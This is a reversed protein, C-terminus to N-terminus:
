HGDDGEQHEIEPVPQDRTPLGLMVRVTPRPLEPHVQQQEYRPADTQVPVTIDNRLELPADEHGTEEDHHAGELVIRVPVRSNPVIAEPSMGM